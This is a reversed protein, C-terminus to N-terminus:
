FTVKLVKIFIYDFNGIYYTINNYAWNRYKELM